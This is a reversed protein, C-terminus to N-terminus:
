LDKIPRFNGNNKAYVRTGSHEDIFSFFTVGARYERKQCRGIWPQDVWIRDGNYYNQIAVDSDSIPSNYIYRVSSMGVGKVEKDFPVCQYWGIEDAYYGRHAAVVADEISCAKLPEITTKTTEKIIGLKHTFGMAELAWDAIQSKDSFKDLDPTYVTYRFSSNRKVYQLANFIATAMDQRTATATPAFSGGGKGSMVGAAHAKLVYTNDSDSYTGSPAPSIERELMQEILRVALSALQLRNISKLYDAGLVDKDILKNAMAWKTENVAWSSTKAGHDDDVVAFYMPKPDDSFTENLVYKKIGKDMSELRVQKFVELSVEPNPGRERLYEAQTMKAIEERENIGCFCCTTCYVKEGKSNRGLYNKDSLDYMVYTHTCAYSKNEDSGCMAYTHKPNYECEGCYKCCYYFLQNQKCTSQRMLTHAAPVKASFDHGPCYTKCTAEKNNMAQYLNGTYTCTRFRLIQAKLNGSWFLNGRNQEQISMLGKPYKSAPLYITMDRTTGGKSGHHYITNHNYGMLAALIFAPEANTDFWIEKVNPLDELMFLFSSRDSVNVIAKEVRLRDESSMDLVYSDIIGDATSAEGWKEQEEMFIRAFNLTIPNYTKYLRDAQEQTYLQSMDLYEISGETYGKWHVTMDTKSGKQIPKVKKGNCTFNNNKDLMNFSSLCGQKVSVSLVASYSEYSKFNGEEDFDGSWKIDVIEIEPNNVTATKTPKQGPVPPTITFDANTIINSGMGIRGFTYELTCKKGSSSAVEKFTAWKGNIKWEATSTNRFVKDMGSKMQLYVKVTYAEGAKFCGNEDLTGSWVVKTVLTSASSPVTGKMIPKEGVKPATVTVYAKTVSGAARAEVFPTILLVIGILLNFLKKM